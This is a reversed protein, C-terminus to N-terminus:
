FICLSLLIYIGATIVNLQRIQSVIRQAQIPLTEVYDLYDSVLRIATSAEAAALQVGGIAVTGSSPLACGSQNATQGANLILSM